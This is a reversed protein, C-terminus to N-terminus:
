ALPSLGQDRLFTAVDDAMRQPYEGNIAHSADAYCHVTGNPLLERARAACAPGDHMRSKGAILVLAPMAWSRIAAVPIRRPAPVGLKFQFGAEIMEAIPVDEVPADNATWSAFSDRWSKPAGPIALPLTRLVAKVSLNGFVLVPDVLILSAVGEPAHSALNAATWGGISVGMVHVQPAPLAQIVESIWQAQDKEGTIPRTQTSLGPEGLLDLAFVPGQSLLTEMNAEWVPTGSSRGPLLLIPDRTPSPESEFLYTQVTGFSTEVRAAKAPTPMDQMAREYATIYAQREADTRFHGLRKGSVYTRRWSRRAASRQPDSM